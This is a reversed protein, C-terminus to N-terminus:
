DGPGTDTTAAPATTASVNPTIQINKPNGTATPALASGVPGWAPDLTEAVLQAQGSPLPLWYLLANPAERQLDGAAVNNNFATALNSADQVMVFLVGTGDPSPAIEAISFNNRKYLQTDVGTTLDIYHLTLEYQTTQFPWIGFAKLGRAKQTDNDLKIPHPNAATSYYIAKGDPTWAAQDPTAGTPITTVVRSSLNFTVLAPPRDSTIGLLQSSDPSVRVRRLNAQVTDKNSGDASMQGVGVGDCGLSYYIMGSKTWTLLLTNGQPGTASWYLQEAPDDTNVKCGTQIGVTDGIKRTASGDGKTANLAYISKDGDKAGEDVLYAVETGDASWAPPYSVVLNSAIKRPAQGGKAPAAFLAGAAPDVFAVDKGNPSVTVNRYVHDSAADSTIPTGPLDILTGAYVNGAFVHALVSLPSKSPMVVPNGGNAGPSGAAPSFGDLGKLFITDWTAFDAQPAFEWIRYGSGYAVFVTVRSQRPQGNSCPSVFVISRGTNGLSTRDGQLQAGAAASSAMYDDLLTDANKTPPVAGLATVIMGPQACVPAINAGFYVDTSRETVRWVDPYAMSFQQNRYTELADSPTGGASAVPVPTGPNNTSVANPTPPIATATSPQTPVRTAIPTCIVTLTLDFSVRVDYNVGAYLITFRYAGFPGPQYTQGTQPCGLASDPFSATVYAWNDALVNKGLAQGLADTAQKYAGDVNDQAVVPMMAFAFALVLGLLTIVRARSM